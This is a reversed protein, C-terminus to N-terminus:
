RVLGIYEIKHYEAYQLTVLWRLAALLGLDDLMSPRRDAHCLLSNM